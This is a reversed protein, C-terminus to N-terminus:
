IPPREGFIARGIRVITAGEEIAVEFDDTMGMSLHRWEVTPVDQRLRAVLASLQRFVPRAQEPNDAVPAITMLGQPQLHTLAAIACAAGILEDPAFGTKSAEGVVNVELLIPLERGHQAAREDLREALTVSDVSQVRAFLDVARAVKNTQLHGILEWRILPLRLAAIKARAEQVRNEGFAKMGLQYAARMREIDVTKSVAIVEIDDADRGAREAAAAVRVRVSRIRAALDDDGM